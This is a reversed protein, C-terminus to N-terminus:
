AQGAKRAPWGVEEEVEHIPDAIVLERMDDFAELVLDTTGGAALARSALEAAPPGAAPPEAEPALRMLGRELLDDVFANTKPALEAEIAGLAAVIDERPHGAALDKWIAGALGRLSFYFGTDLNLAVIEEGFEDAVCSPSAMTLITRPEQPQGTTM